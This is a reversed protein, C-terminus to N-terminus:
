ELYVLLDIACILGGTALVCTPVARAQAYRLNLVAGIKKHGVMVETEGWAWSVTHWLAVDKRICGLLSGNLSGVGSVLRHVHIHRGWCQTGRGWAWSATDCLDRM